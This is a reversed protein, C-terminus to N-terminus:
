NDLAGALNAHAFHAFCYALTVTWVYTQCTWATLYQVTGTMNIKMCLLILASETIHMDIGLGTLNLLSTFVTSVTGMRSIFCTLPLCLSLHGIYVGLEAAHPLPKNMYMSSVADAHM